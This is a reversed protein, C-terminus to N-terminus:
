STSKNPSKPATKGSFPGPCMQTIDRRPNGQKGLEFVQIHLHPGSTQGAGATGKTGGSYGILQGAKVPQKVQLVPGSARIKDADMHQYRVGFGNATNIIVTYGSKKDKESVTAVFGDEVAFLATGQDAVFDVAAHFDPKGTVPHTRQGFPSMVVLPTAALPNSRFKDKNPPEESVIPTTTDGVVSAPEHATEVSEAGVKPRAKDLDLVYIGSAPALIAEPGWGVRASSPTSEGAAVTNFVQLEIPDASETVDIGTLLATNAPDIGSNSLDAKQLDHLKALDNPNRYYGSFMRINDLGVSVNGMPAVGLSITKDVTVINGIRSRRIHHLPRNPLLFPRYSFNATLVHSRALAKQYLVVSRQQAVNKDKLQLFPISENIIEIGYRAAIYPSYVFIRALNAAVNGPVDAGAAFGTQVIMGAPPSAQEDGISTSILGKDVRLSAKFEGFDEPRFDMMPFEVIVDGYPSIMFNYDLAAVFNKIVELRSTWNVEHSMAISVNSLDALNKPGTGEKPLMFWLRIKNPAYAGDTTTEAGVAEMEERTWPRRKPGFLCFKHWDELFKRAKTADTQMSDYYFNGGLSVGRVGRNNKEVTIPEKAVLLDYVAEELSSNPSIQQAFPTVSIDDYYLTNKIDYFGETNDKFQQQNAQDYVTPPAGGKETSIPGSRFGLADLPVLLGSTLDASIRMRNLVAEKFDYCDITLTSVGRIDDDELSVNDIYGTFEPMWLEYRSGEEYQKGPVRFPYLSFIRVPDQRNFISRNPALDFRAFCISNKPNRIKPNRGPDAKYAYMQAKLDEDQTFAFQELFDAALANSTVGTQTKIQEILNAYVPAQALAASAGYFTMLNRETWVFRDNSNDLTFSATNNGDTGNLSITVQGKLYQSVEVGQIYIVADIIFVPNDSEHDINDAYRVLKGGPLLPKGTAGPERKAPLAVLQEPEQVVSNSLVDHYAVKPYRASGNSNAAKTTTRAVVAAAQAAAFARFEELAEVNEPAALSPSTKIEADILAQMLKTENGPQAFTPNQRVVTDTAADIQSTSKGDSALLAKLQDVFTRGEAASNVFSLATDFAIQQSRPDKGLAESITEAANEATQGLEQLQESAEPESLSSDQLGKVISSKTPKPTAGVDKRREVM